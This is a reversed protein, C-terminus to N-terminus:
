KGDDGIKSQADIWSEIIQIREIWSRGWRGRRSRLWAHAIGAETTAAHMAACIYATTPEDPDPDPRPFRAVVDPPITGAGAPAFVTHGGGGSSVRRWVRGQSDTFQDDTM